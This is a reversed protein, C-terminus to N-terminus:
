FAHKMLEHIWRKDRESDNSFRKTKLYLCAPIFHMTGNKGPKKVKKKLADLFEVYERKSMDPFTEQVTEILIILDDGLIQSFELMDMLYIDVIDMQDALIFKQNSIWLLASSMNGFKELSSSCQLFVDGQAQHSQSVSLINSFASSGSQTDVNCNRLETLTKDYIFVLADTFDFPPIFGAGSSSAANMYGLKNTQEIYEIFCYIGKQCHDASTSVNKSNCFALKYIHTIACLGLQIVYKQCDITKITESSNMVALYEYVATAYKQILDQKTKLATEGDTAFNPTFAIHAEM